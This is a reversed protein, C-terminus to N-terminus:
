FAHRSKLIPFAMAVTRFSTQVVGGKQWVVVVMVMVIMAIAIVLLQLLVVVATSATTANAPTFSGHVIAVDILFDHGVM